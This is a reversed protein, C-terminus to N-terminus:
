YARMMEEHQEAQACHVIFETCYGYTISETDFAAQAQGPAKVEAPEEKKVATTDTLELSVNEDTLAEYM